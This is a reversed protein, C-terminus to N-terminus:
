TFCHDSGRHDLGIHDLGICQGYHFDRISLACHIDKTSHRMHLWLPPHGERYLGIGFPGPLDDCDILSLTWLAENNSWRVIM